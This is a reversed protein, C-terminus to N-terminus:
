LRGGVRGRKGTRASQNLASKLPGGKRLSDAVVRDLVKQKYTLEIVVPQGGGTGNNLADIAASGGISNVASQNLVAEGGQANILQDGRGGIMGGQHFTPQQQAILAVQSATTAGVFAAMAVGAANPGLGIPPPALAGIAASAGSMIASAMQTAKQWAFLDGLEAQRKEAFKARISEQAEANGEAQALEAAEQEALANTRREAAQDLLTQIQNAFTNAIDLRGQAVAIDHALLDDAKKRSLESSKNLWDETTVLGDQLLKNIDNQQDKYSQVIADRDTLELAVLQKANEQLRQQEALADNLQAWADTQENISGTISNSDEETGELVTSLKSMTSAFVEGGAEQKLTDFYANIATIAPQAALGMNALQVQQIAIANAAALAALELAVNTDNLAALKLALNAVEDADERAQAAQIQMLLNLKETKKDTSTIQSTYSRMSGELIHIQERVAALANGNRTAITGYHKMALGNSAIVTEGNEIQSNFLDLAEGVDRIPLKVSAINDQFFKIGEASTFGEEFRKLSELDKQMEQLLQRKGQQADLEEQMFETSRKRADIVAFEADGLLGVANELGQLEHKYQRSAQIGAQMEEHQKELAERAKQSRNRFHLFAGALLGVGGLLVMGRKGIKDLANTLTGAMRTVGEFAGAVDGVQSMLAGMEENVLDVGGAMAKLSSDFDGALEGMESFAMGTREATEELADGTEHAADELEELGEIGDNAGETVSSGIQRAGGQVQNAAKKFKKGFRESDKAIGNVARGIIQFGQVAGAHNVGVDFNINGIEAM